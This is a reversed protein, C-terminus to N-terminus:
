TNHGPLVRFQDPKSICYDALEHMKMIKVGSMSKAKRILERAVNWARDPTGTGWGAVTHYTLQYYGTTAYIADLEASWEQLVEEQEQQGTYMPSDDVTMTNNPLIVFDNVVKGDISALYPVDDDKESADYTCGLGHMVAITAPSKAGGPSCFGRPPVGTIDSLIKFSKELDAAKGEGQRHYYGHMCLEHGANFAKRFLGPALQADYGPVMITAKINENAFIELHRELGARISYYGGSATGLPNHGRGVALGPGDIHATVCMVMKAGDPWVPRKPVNTRYAQPGASNSFEPSDGKAQPPADGRRAQPPLAAAKQSLVASSGALMVGGLGKIVSRRNYRGFRPIM